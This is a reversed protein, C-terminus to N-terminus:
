REIVAIIPNQSRRMSCLILRDYRDTSALAVQAAERALRESAADDVMNIVPVFRADGVGHLLGDPSSFLKGLHAPTVIDGPRAGTVASVLALRHATRESLPEGIVRASALAIVTACGPPLVPEGARPAKLWRMRAGDAKVFTVDFGCSEHITAIQDGPVGSYRGPKKEPGAYAVYRQASAAVMQAMLDDGEGVIVHAGLHDPFHTTVVSATQAVRGPHAAGLRYLTTKKGGAGVACVIGHRAGFLDLLEGSM